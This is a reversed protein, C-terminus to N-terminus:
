SRHSSTTGSMAFIFRLGWSGPYHWARWRSLQWALPLWSDLVSRSPSRPIPAKDPKYTGVGLDSPEMLGFLFYSVLVYVSTAIVLTWIM